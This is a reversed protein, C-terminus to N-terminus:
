VDIVVLSIVQPARVARLLWLWQWGGGLASFPFGYVINNQWWGREMREDESAGERGTAMESRMNQCQM